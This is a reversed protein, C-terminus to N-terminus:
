HNAVLDLRGWVRSAVTTALGYVQGRQRRKGEEESQILSCIFLLYFHVLLINPLLSCTALADYYHSLM